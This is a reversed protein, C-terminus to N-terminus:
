SNQLAVEERESVKENSKVVVFTFFLLVLISMPLGIFVPNIGFPHDLLQWTISVVLGTWMSAVGAFKNPKKWYLGIFIPALMGSVLIASGMTWLEILRPIVLALLLSFVSMVVVMLRSLMLLKEDSPNKLRPKVLDSLIITSGAIFFSDACSLITAILVIFMIAGFWFPIANFIVEYYLLQPTETTLGLGPYAFLGILVILTGTLVIGALAVWNSTTVTKLNKAAWIRQWQDQRVLVAAGITLIPLFVAAISTDFPNLYSSSINDLAAINGSMNAWGGSMFYVAIFLSIVGLTQVTGQVMDTWIVATLGGLYTKITILIWSIFIGTTMNLGFIINFVTAMAVFQLGTLAGLAALNGIFTPIRAGEGYRLAAYDGVSFLKHKDGVKRIRKALFVNFIIFAIALSVVSWIASMGDAYANGMFGLITSGGIAAGLITLIMPFLPMSRGGMNYSEYTRAKLYFYYSYGIIALCYIIVAVILVTQQPGSIM